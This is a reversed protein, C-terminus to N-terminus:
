RQILVQRVAGGYNEDDTGAFFEAAQGRERIALAETKLGDLRALLRPANFLNVRVRSSRDLIVQGARWIVSSFPGNDDEPDYASAIYIHGRKDIEMASVPRWNKGTFKGPKFYTHQVTGLRVPDLQLDAWSLKSSVQDDAREAWLFVLRNGVKSVASGEINKVAAPLETFSLIEIREDKLETLFVRSFRQGKYSSEGSEVLLFMSTGPIRAISELDSSENMPTPWSVKLPKWRVGDLTRPLWLLSVRPRNNEEPNKADHVALFTDREVWALGSIDPMPDPTQEACFTLTPTTLPASLLVAALLLVLTKQPHMFPIYKM